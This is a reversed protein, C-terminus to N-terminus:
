LEHFTPLDRAGQYLMAWVFLLYQLSKNQNNYNALSHSTMLMTLQVIRCEAKTSMM